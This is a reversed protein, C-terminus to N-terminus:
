ALGAARRKGGTVKAAQSERIVEVAHSAKESIKFKSDVEKAQHGIASGVGAM